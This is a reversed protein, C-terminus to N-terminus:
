AILGPLSGSTASPRETCIVVGSCTTPEHWRIVLPGTKRPQATGSGTSCWRVWALLRVTKLLNALRCQHVSLFFFFFTCQTPNNERCVLRRQWTVIPRIFRPFGVERGLICWNAKMQLFDSELFKCSVLRLCKQIWVFSM